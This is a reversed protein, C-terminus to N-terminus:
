QNRQSLFFEALALDAPRTIKLNSAAGEILKPAYGAWELASSEDTINAGKALAQELAAYLISLPAAQPTLAHWLNEREETHSVVQSAQARKMTDRVPTALLAGQTIDAQHLSQIDIQNLCPRAADHVWVTADEEVALTERLYTLGNLVSDAREKGGTAHYVPFSLDGWQLADWYPDGKAVAIVAGAIEPLHNFCALTQELVTKDLLQLYQKPQQVQMRKGVGAAPIVLWIPKNSM